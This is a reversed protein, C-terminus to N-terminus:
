PTEDFVSLLQPYHTTLFARLEKEARYPRVPNGGIRYRGPDIQVAQEGILGFNTSVIADDDFIGLRRKQRGIDLLSRLACRAALENGANMWATIQPFIPSGKKQLVFCTRDLDIQHHIELKDVIEFTPLSQAGGPFAVAILGTEQPLKEFAIRYGTLDRLRKRSRKELERTRFAKVQNLIPITGVWDPLHLVGRKFFKLIYSGDQSAFVFCQDGSGYYHFPQRSLERVATLQDDTLPPPLLDTEVAKDSVIRTVSFGDTATRCLPELVHFTLAIAIVHIWPKVRKV